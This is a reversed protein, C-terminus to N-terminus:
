WRVKIPLSPLSRGTKLCVWIPCRQHYIGNYGRHDGIRLEGSSCTPNPQPGAELIFGLVRIFDGVSLVLVLNVVWFEIFIAFMFMIRVYFWKISMLFIRNRLTFLVVDTIYRSINWKFRFNSKSLSGGIFIGEISEAISFPNGIPFGSLM